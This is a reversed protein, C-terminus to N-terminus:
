IRDLNNAKYFPFIGAIYRARWNENHFDREVVHWFMDSGCPLTICHLLLPVCLQSIQSFEAQLLEWLSFLILLGDKPLNSFANTWFWMKSFRLGILNPFKFNLTIISFRNM